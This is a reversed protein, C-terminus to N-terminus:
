DIKQPELSKKYAWEVYPLKVITRLPIPRRPRDASKSWGMGGKESATTTRWRWAGFMLAASIGLVLLALVAVIIKLGM